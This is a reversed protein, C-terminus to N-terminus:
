SPKYAVFVLDLMKLYFPRFPVGSPLLNPPMGYGVVVEWHDKRVRNPRKRTESRGHFSSDQVVIYMRSSRSSEAPRFHAMFLWTVLLGGAHQTVTWISAWVAPYPFQTVADSLAVLVWVTESPVSRGPSRRM